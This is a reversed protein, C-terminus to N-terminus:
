SQLCKFSLWLENIACFNANLLMKVINLVEVQFLKVFFYIHAMPRYGLMEGSLVRGSQSEGAGVARTDKMLWHKSCVAGDAGSYNSWQIYHLSIKFVQNNWHTPGCALSLSALVARTPQGVLQRWLAFPVSLGWDFCGGTATHTCCVICVSFLRFVESKFLECLTQLNLKIGCHM